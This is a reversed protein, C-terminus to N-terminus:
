IMIVLCNIYIYVCVHNDNRKSNRKKAKDQKTQNQSPKLKKTSGILDNSSKSQKIKTGNLPLKNSSATPTKSAYDDICGSNVPTLMSYSQPLRETSGISLRHVGVDRSKNNNTENVDSENADTKSVNVVEENIDFFMLEDGSDHNIDNYNVTTNAKKKTGNKTSNKQSNNKQSNNKQKSNIRGSKPREKKKLKNTSNKKNLQPTKKSKAMSSAKTPNNKPTTARFNNSKYRASKPRVPTTAKSSKASPPRSSRKKTSKNNTNSNNTNTKKTSKKKNSNKDKNLTGLEHKQSLKITETQFQNSKDINKNNKSDDNNIIENETITNIKPISTQNNSLKSFTNLTNSNNSNNNNNKHSSISNNDIIQPAPSHPIFIPQSNQLVGFRIKTPIPADKLITVIDSYNTNIVDFDNISIIYSGIKVVDSHKAWEVVAGIKSENKARLKINFPKKKFEVTWEEVAEVNGTNSLNNNNYLAFSNNNNNHLNHHRPQHENINIDYGNQTSSIIGYKKIGINIEYIINDVKKSLFKRQDGNNYILIFSEDTEKMAHKLKTWRHFSCEKEKHQASQPRVTLIGESIYLIIYCICM